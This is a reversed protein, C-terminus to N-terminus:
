LHDNDVHDFFAETQSNSFIGNLSHLSYNHWLSFICVSTAVDWWRVTTDDGASAIHLKDQAGYQVWHVARYGDWLVM